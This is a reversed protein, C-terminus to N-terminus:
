TCRQNIFVSVNLVDNCLKINISLYILSLFLINIIIINYFHSNYGSLFHSYNINMNYVNMYRMVHNQSDVNM